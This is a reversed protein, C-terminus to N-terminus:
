RSAPDFDPEDHRRLNLVRRHRWADVAWLLFAVTASVQRMSMMVLFLYVMWGFVQSPGPNRRLFRFLSTLAALTAFMYSWRALGTAYELGFGTALLLPIWLFRLLPLRVDVYEPDCQWAFYRPLGASALLWASGVGLTVVPPWTAFEPAQLILMLVSFAIGVIASRALFLGARPWRLSRPNAATDWFAVQDARIPPPLDRRGGDLADIFEVMDKPGYPALGHRLATRWSVPQSLTHIWARAKTPDPDNYINRSFVRLAEDNGPLLRWTLDLRSRLRELEWADVASDVGGLHFFDAVADFSAATMPPTDDELAAMVRAGLEVKTELSWLAPQADLWARLARADDTRVHELLGAHFRDWDLKAVPPQADVIDAHAPLEIPAQTGPTTTTAPPAEDDVLFVQFRCESLAEQYREHLEQFAAPAEDPRTEKLRRAYARKVDRESADPSLGFWSLADM